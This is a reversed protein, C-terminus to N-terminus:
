HGKSMQLSDYEAKLRHLISAWEEDGSDNEDSDTSTWVEVEDEILQEGRAKDM